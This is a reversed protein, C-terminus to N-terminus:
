GKAGRARSLARNFIPTLIARLVRSVAGGATIRAAVARGYRRYAAMVIAGLGTKAYVDNLWDRTVITRPDEWGDWLAAAIWCSPNGAAAAGVQGASQMGQLALQQLFSQKPMGNILSTNNSGLQSYENGYLNAPQFAEGTVGQQLSAQSGLDHTINSQGATVGQQAGVVGARGQTVGQQAGVVGQRGQTVGQQGQTVQGQSGVVGAQQGPLAEREQLAADAAKADINNAGSNAAIARNQALQGLQTYEGANGGSNASGQKIQDIAGGYAAHTQGAANAKMAAVEADSYGPHAGLADVYSQQKNVAGQQRNVSGQQQDVSAALPDIDAQERDVSQAL